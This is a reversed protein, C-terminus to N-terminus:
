KRHVQQSIQRPLAVILGLVLWLFVSVKSSWAVADVLGHVALAVLSGALGWAIPRLAPSGHRWAHALVAGAATLMAAFAVLGPLGLDSAVQLYLNHAHTPRVAVDAGLAFYPYLIPVIHGFLGLGIGTLPFDQVAALGRLWVEERGPIGATLVPLLSAGVLRLGLGAAALLGVAPLAMWRWRVVAMMLGAAGLSLLGGRSQSFLLGALLVVASLGAMIRTGRPWSPPTGSLAPGAALPLAMALATALVNAHIRVPWPILSLPAPLPLFRGALQMGGTMGLVALAVGGGVVVGAAAAYGLGPGASNVLAYLAAVGLLLRAAEALSRSLDASMWLGVPVTALLALVAWDLATRENWHGTGLRRIPWTLLAAGLALVGWSPRVLAVLTFVLVVYFQLSALRRALASLSLQPM